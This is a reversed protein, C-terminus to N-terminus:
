ADPNDPDIDHEDTNKAVPQVLMSTPIEGPTTHIESVEIVEADSVNMFKALKEKLKADIEQETLDTKKVEIKETFLGIETVKGLLGLAKLRINANPNECEELIKAVAYGRLEKAQNVLEWDYATLMSTLHRVAAPTELREILEHQKPPPSTTTIALFAERAQQQELISVQEEADTSGHEKLWDLTNIKGNAAQGPTVKAVPPPAEATPLVEPDFDILHDLMQGSFPRTAYGIADTYM